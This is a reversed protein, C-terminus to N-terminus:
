HVLLLLFIVNILSHAIIAGWLSKTLKVWLTFLLGTLGYFIIYSLHLTGTFLSSYVVATIALGIPGFVEWLANQVLGRFIIEEPVANFLALIITGLIIWGASRTPITIMGPPLMRAALLGIPIGLLGFAIQGAWKRRGIQFSLAPLGTMYISILGALLLPIGILPYWFLPAVHPVPITVSLIRMLPVLALPLIIRRAEQIEAFYSFNVLGVLVIGDLIAGALVGVFVTLIEAAIVLIISLTIAIFISRSTTRLFQRVNNNTKAIQRALMGMFTNNTTEM